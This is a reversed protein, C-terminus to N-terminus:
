RANSILEQIHLPLNRTSRLEMLNGYLSEEKYLVQITRLTEIVEQLSYEKGWYPNLGIRFSLRNCLICPLMMERMGLSAVLRIMQFNKGKWIDNIPEDNVNGITTTCAGDFCCPAVEGNFRITAYKLPETCKKKMPFDSLSLGYPEWKELPLNGGWTHINRASNKKGVMDDHDSREVIYYIDKKKPGAYHFPNDNTEYVNHLAIDRKIFHEKHKRVDDLFWRETDNDYLDAQLINLGRDYLDFLWEMGERKIKDMNSIVMIQCDPYDNRVLEIMDPLLPNLTPEGQLSFDIRKLSNGAGNILNNFTEMTMMGSERHSIGCFNCKRNCIHSPEVKLYHIDEFVTLKNKRLQEVREKSYEM